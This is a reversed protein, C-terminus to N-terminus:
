DFDIIKYFQDETMDGVKENYFSLFATICEKFLKRFEPEKMESIKISRPLYVVSGTHTIVQDYHGAKMQIIKRFIEINTYISQMNFATNIFVHFRKLNDANRSEKVEIVVHKGHPLTKIDDVQYENVGVLSEGIRMVVLEM